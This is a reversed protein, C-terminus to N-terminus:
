QYRHIATSQRGKDIFPVRTTWYDIATLFLLKRSGVFSCTTPEVSMRHFASSCKKVDAASSHQTEYLTQHLNLHLNQAALLFSSSTNSLRQQCFPLDLQLLLPTEVCFGISTLLQIQVSRLWRDALHRCCSIYIRALNSSSSCKNWWQRYQGAHFTKVSLLAVAAGPGLVWYM